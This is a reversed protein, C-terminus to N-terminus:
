LGTIKSLNLDVGGQVGNVHYFNGAQWIHSKAGDERLVYKLHWYKYGKFADTVHYTKEFQAGVYLIAQKGSQANVEALYANIEKIVTDRKPKANCYPSFELDLAPPLVDGNLNAMSLFNAAQSKGPSCLSFYHYAGTQMGAQQAGRSYEKFMPDNTGSGESAKVYVFSIHDRAVKTWDIMGQHSSVDIGYVEGPMLAPRYRPVIGYWSVLGGLIIVAIGCVIRVILKNHAYTSILYFLRSISM